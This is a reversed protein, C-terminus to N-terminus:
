GSRKSAGTREWTMMIRDVLPPYSIRNRLIFDKASSYKSRNEEVIRQMKSSSKVHLDWERTVLMEIYTNHFEEAFQIFEEETGSSDEPTKSRAQAVYRRLYESMSRTILTKPLQKIVRNPFSPDGASSTTLYKEKLELKGQFYREGGNKMFTVHDKEYRAACAVIFPNPEPLIPQMENPPLTASM